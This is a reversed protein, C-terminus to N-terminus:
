NVNQSVHGLTIHPFSCLHRLEHLDSLDGAREPNVLVGHSAPLFSTQQVSDPQRAANPAKAGLIDLGHALLHETPERWQTGVPVDRRCTGM